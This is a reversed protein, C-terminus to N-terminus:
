EVFGEARLWALTEGGPKFSYYTKNVPISVPWVIRGLSGGYFQEFAIVREDLEEPSEASWRHVDCFNLGPGCDCGILGEDGDPQPERRRLPCAQRVPPVANGRFWHDPEFRASRGAFYVPM